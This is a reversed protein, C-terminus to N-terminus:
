GGNLDLDLQIQETTQTSRVQYEILIELLGPQNPDRQADISLIEIRPEWRELSTRVYHIAIAATTDDNPSFILQHLPCGYAPRMLREGPRTSLALLVAQRVAEDEGVMEVGGRPTLRLGPRGASPADLHPHVFRWAQYTRPKVGGPPHNIDTM